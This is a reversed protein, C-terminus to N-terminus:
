ARRKRPAILSNLLYISGFSLLSSWIIKNLVSIFGDWRGYEISFIILHHLFILPSVYLISTIPGLTFVSTNVEDEPEETVLVLWFDKIFMVAVSAAAHMGPTNSFMDISLGVLFGLLLQLFPSVKYPFLILFGIYFFGFATDFLIFKYLLPFQIIVMLLFQLVQYRYNIRIM